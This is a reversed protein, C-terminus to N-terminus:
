AVRCDHFEPIMFAPPVTRDPRFLPRQPINLSNSKGFLQWYFDPARPIDKLGEQGKDARLALEGTITRALEMIADNTTDGQAAINHELCQASWMGGDKMLLVNLNM